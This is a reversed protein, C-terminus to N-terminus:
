YINTIIGDQVTVINGTPTTFSGSAGTGAVVNGTTSVSPGDVYLNGTINVDGVINITPTDNPTSMKISPGRPDPGQMIWIEGAPVAPPQHASDNVRGTILPSRRDNELFEVFVQDGINPAGYVGFGNGVAQSLIPIWDTLVLEPSILVKAQYTYPNYSQITGCRPDAIRRLARTAEQRMLNRFHDLNIM